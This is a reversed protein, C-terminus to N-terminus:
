VVMLFGKKTEAVQKIIDALKNYTNEWETGIVSNKYYEGQFTIDLMKCVENGMVGNWNFFFLPAFGDAMTLEHVKHSVMALHPYNYQLSKVMYEPDNFSPKEVKLPPHDLSALFDVFKKLRHEKITLTKTMKDVTFKMGNPVSQGLFMTFDPHQKVELINFKENSNRLLEEFVAGRELYDLVGHFNVDTLNSFQTM